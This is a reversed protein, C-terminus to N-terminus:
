LLLLVGFAFYSSVKHRENNLVTHLYKEKVTHFLQTSGIDVADMSSADATTIPNLLPSRLPNVHKSRHSKSSFFRHILYAAGIMGVGFGFYLWKNAAASTSPSVSTGTGTTRINSSSMKTPWDFPDPWGEVFIDCHIAKTAANSNSSTQKEIPEYRRKM